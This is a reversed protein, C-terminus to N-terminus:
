EATIRAQIMVLNIVSANEVILVSIISTASLVYRLRVVISDSLASGAIIKTIPSDNEVNKM